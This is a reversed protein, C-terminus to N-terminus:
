EQSAGPKERRMYLMFAAGATAMAGMAMVFWNTEASAQPIAKLEGSETKDGDKDNVVVAAAKDEVKKDEGAPLSECFIGDSDADLDARGYKDAYAKAGAQTTFDDCVKDSILNGDADRGSANANGDNEVVPVGTDDMEPAEVPTTVEDENEDTAPPEVPTTEGDTPPTVPVLPVDSDDMPPPTEGEDVPTEVPPLEEDEPEPTPAPLSLDNYTYTVTAQSATFVGYEDGDLGAIEYGSVDANVARYAMGVDGKLNVPEAIENGDQDVFKVIVRVPSDPNMDGNDVVPVDEVVEDEPAPEVEPVPTPEPETGTDDEPAPDEPLPEDAGATPDEPDFPVIPVDSDDMPPAEPQDIPAEDVPEEVPTEDVPEAVPTEDVPEVIPNGDADHEGGHDALVMPSALSLVLAASATMLTLRKKNLTFPKKTM